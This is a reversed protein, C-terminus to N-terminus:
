LLKKGSNIYIMRMRVLIDSEARKDEPFPDSLNLEMVAPKDTTRNYFTVLRPVPLPILKSGFKNKKRLTILAEYINGVYQMMRLPMNPNYSSQQEYLNLENMILLAADDHMGMYQAQTLTAITIM